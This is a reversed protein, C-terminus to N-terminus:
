EIVIEDAFIWAKEGAGQHWAPCARVNKAFVRVYRASKGIEGSAFNEIRAGQEQAPVGPAFKAVSVFRKGDSSFSYEVMEPLFLWSNQDQLFGTTVRNVRQVRGLDVIADLDVGEYGQWLGTKFDLPGRLGDILALDGGAPYMGSYPANLRISRNGPIKRFEATVVASPPLGDKMAVAKLAASKTFLLPERYLSSGAGPAGGDLTFYIRTGGTLTGLAAETSGSFIRSGAAVFPVPLILSDAIASAPRESQAAGWSTNPEPGMVFALEGGAM